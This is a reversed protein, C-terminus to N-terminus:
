NTQSVLMGVIVCAICFIIFGVVLVLIIKTVNQATQAVKAVEAPVATPSPPPAIEVPSEIESKLEKEKKDPPPDPQYFVDKKDSAVKSKNAEGTIPIQFGCFQCVNEGAKNKKIKLPAGCSPCTTPNQMKEGFM